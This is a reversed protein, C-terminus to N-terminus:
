QSKSRLLLSKRHHHLAVLGSARALFWREREDFLAASARASMKKAFYQRKQARWICM